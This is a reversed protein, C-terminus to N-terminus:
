ISLILDKVFKLYVWFGKGFDGEFLDTLLTKSAETIYYDWLLIM